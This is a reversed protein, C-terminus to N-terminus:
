TNRCKHANTEPTRVYTQLVFPETSHVLRAPQIQRGDSDWDPTVLARRRVWGLTKKGAGEQLRLQAFAGHKVMAARACCSLSVTESQPPKECRQWWPLLFCYSVCSSSVIHRGSFSFTFWPNRLHLMPMALCAAGCKHQSVLLKRAICPLLHVMEGQQREQSLTQPQTQLSFFSYIVLNMWWLKSWNFWHSKNCIETVKNWMLM